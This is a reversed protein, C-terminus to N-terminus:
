MEYDDCVRTEVLAPPCCPSGGGHEERRRGQTYVLGLGTSLANYVSMKVLYLDRFNSEINYM